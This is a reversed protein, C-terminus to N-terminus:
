IPKDVESGMSSYRNTKKWHKSPLLLPMSIRQAKISDLNKMIIDNIKDLVRLSLPLLTYLGSASKIKTIFYYYYIKVQHIFSGKLLANHSRSLSNKNVPQFFLDSLLKM